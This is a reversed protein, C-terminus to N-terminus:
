GAAAGLCRQRPRRRRRRTGRRWRPRPSSRRAFCTARSTTNDVNTVTTSNANLRPTRPAFGRLAAFLEGEPRPAFRRHQMFLEEKARQKAGRGELIPSMCRYKIFRAKGARRKGECSRVEMEKDMM